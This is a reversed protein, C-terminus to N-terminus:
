KAIKDTISVAQQQALLALETALFCHQQSMATETRNLVDDVFLSGFPLTDNNCDIFRTEKHNVLYLHNGGAPGAIDINKRVEIYGDTGLITLRGDGWSGLADPTFWDVRIYGTGKNGRIMVDGFDQMNPYQPHHLNGTQAAVITAETSGTFHLFQDFQHSGIDTLIGGFNKRHFFWDPRTPINIRHPGLGVTQLVRGIAGQRILEGARVTAKNEHRESFLISYIRGTEKQVKRVAALQDLETIGPKDVLFDKGHRMVEIGLPAREVPIGSSLIVQLSNDELIEEKSRALKANPYRASFEAVLAPEKAYFAVLLGGGRTVADVMGYIHNHNINIVSFRIRPNAPPPPPPGPLYHQSFSNSGLLALGAAAASRRLFNRRQQQLNGM